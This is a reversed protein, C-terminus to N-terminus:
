HNAAPRGSIKKPLWVFQRSRVVANRAAVKIKLAHTRGDLDRDDPKVGLLYYGSTEVLLRDFAVEPSGTPAQLLAGGSTLAVQALLLQQLDRERAMDQRPRRGEASYGTAADVDVHLSYVTANAQAATRGVQAALGGDSNWNGPRDSIPMGGSVLVVTRRAPYEALASLMRQLSLLSTEADAELLRSLGDAETLISATCTTDTTSRCERLQVSRLTDNVVVPAPTTGRGAPSPPQMAGDAASIDIVEGPTLHFQGPRFSRTGGVANLAERIADRNTTPALVRGRPLVCVGIVDAAPLRELFRRAAGAVTASEAASFSANDIALMFSRGPAASTRVNAATPNGSSALPGLASEPLYRVFEASSVPRRRGDITVDFNGPQLNMFPHGDRDLVSVDVAIVDVMSRFAAQPPTQSGQSDVDREFGFWLSAAVAMALAPKL